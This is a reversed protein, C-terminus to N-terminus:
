KKSVLYKTFIFTIYGSFSTIGQLAMDDKVIHYEAQMKEYVFNTVTISSFGIKPM